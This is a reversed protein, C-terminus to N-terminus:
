PRSSLRRHERLMCRSMVVKLGAARAKEAAANHVIGDQMWVTKAEMAIAADVIEPVAESRRFIDVVDVKVQIDQLRGYAKEGLVETVKPNVPIISYGERQLYTAVVYSPRNPRDSLGVVAIVRSESLIRRLEEDPADEMPIECSDSM